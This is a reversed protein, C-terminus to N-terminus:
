RRAIRAYPHPERGAPDAAPAARATHTENRDTGPRPEGPAAAGAPMAPRQLARALVLGGIIQLCLTAVAFALGFGAVTAFKAGGLHLALVGTGVGLLQVLFDGLAAAQVGMSAARGVARLSARLAHLKWALGAAGSLWSAALGLVVARDAGAPLRGSAIAVGGLLAAPLAAMALVVAFRVRVAPAPESSAHQAPATRM